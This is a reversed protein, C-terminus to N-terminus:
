LITNNLTDPLGEYSCFIKDANISISNNEITILTVTEPGSTMTDGSIAGNDGSGDGWESGNFNGGGFSGSGDSNETYSENQALKGNLMWTVTKITNGEGAYVTLKRMGYEPDNETVTFYCKQNVPKDIIVNASAHKTEYSSVESASTTDSEAYAKVTKIQTVAFPEKYEKKTESDIPDTGDTTYFIKAAETKTALTIKNDKISFTVKEAKPLAQWVAYLTVDAIVKYVDGAKLIENGDKTLSWGAFTVKGKNEFKCEPLKEETGKTVSLPEMTGTAGNADFTIVAIGYLSLEAKTTQGATVSVDSVFGSYVLKKSGDQNTTYAEIGFSYVGPDLELTVTEGPAATQEEVTQTEQNIVSVTFEMQDFTYAARAANPTGFEPLTFTVYGYNTTLNTCSNLLILSLLLTFFISIKKM